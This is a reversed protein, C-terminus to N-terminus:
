SSNTKSILHHSWNYIQIQLILLIKLNLIPYWFHSYHIIILIYIYSLNFICVHIIQKLTYTSTDIIPYHRYHIDEAAKILQIRLSSILHSPRLIRLKYRLTSCAIMRTHVNFFRLLERTPEEGKNRDIIIVM